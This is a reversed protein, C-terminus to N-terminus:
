VPCNVRFFEAKNEHQENEQSTSGESLPDATDEILQWLNLYEVPTMNDLSQHPRATNYDHRWRNLKRRADRLGFFLHTNLCEDRLRGNFSEIFGNEVPKGPRIFALLVTHVYAWSDMARSYFESGNDVRISEPYGQKACYPEADPQCKRRHNFPRRPLGSM